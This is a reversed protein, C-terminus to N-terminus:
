WFEGPVSHGHLPSPLGATRATMIEFKQKAMAWGFHLSRGPDARVEIMTTEPM